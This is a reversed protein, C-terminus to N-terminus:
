KGQEPLGLAVRLRARWRRMITVAQAADEPSAGAGPYRSELGADTLRGLELAEDASGAVLGEALALLAPLGHTKPFDRGARILLAKFYKEVAQQAHFCAAAHHRAGAAWDAVAADEEAKEVWEEAPGNM